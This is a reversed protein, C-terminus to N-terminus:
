KKNDSFGQSSGCNSKNAFNDLRLALTALAKQDSPPLICFRRADSCAAQEAPDVAGTTM